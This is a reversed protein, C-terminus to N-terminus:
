DGSTLKLLYDTYKKMQASTEIKSLDTLKENQRDDLIKISMPSFDGVLYIKGEFKGFICTLEVLSVNRREFFSKVIANIKSCFRNVMKLEDYNCFNFSIIHSESIISDKSDGFHFEHIPLELPAGPKISFIKATRTDANNLIKIRFQYPVFKLFELNRKGSKKLYAIPINYGKLYDFFFSNLFASKEGFNKVRLSKNKQATFFDKYEILENSQESKSINEKSNGKLM